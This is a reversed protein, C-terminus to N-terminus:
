LTTEEIPFIAANWHLAAWEHGAARGGLLRRHLIAVRWHGYELAKQGPIQLQKRGPVLEEGCPSEEEDQM